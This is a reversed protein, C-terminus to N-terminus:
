GNPLRGGKQPERSVGGDPPVSSSSSETGKSTMQKESTIM